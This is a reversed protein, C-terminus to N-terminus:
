KYNRVTEVLFKLSDVPAQPLIGHGLNFIHGKAKKGEEIVRKVEREIVDYGAFLICPDVNGQLVFKNDTLSIADTLSTMWDVGMGDIPLEQLKKYFGSGNKAFYILPTEKYKEKLKAFIKKVYPFVYREYDFPSLIGGFTDFLMLTEAGAEIQFSLYDILVKTLKTMLNNWSIDDNYMLAKVYTYNRSPGGEVMYCALTFPAGAFGILTKNNKLTKSLIKLTDYVYPTEAAVNEFALKDVDEKTRVPNHFVPGKGEIFELNMGMPELPILIDSFLIAGDMDFIDIPQMTVEAAVEPTKCMELFTHKERVARYQPLYRGAQRMVWIPPTDQKIGKLTDLLPKTM